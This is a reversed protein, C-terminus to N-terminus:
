RGMEGLGDVALLEGDIERDLIQSHDDDAAEPAYRAREEARGEDREQRHYQAVDHVRELVDQGAVGGDQKGANLEEQEAEHDHDEHDELWLAQRPDPAVDPVEEPEPRKGISTVRAM